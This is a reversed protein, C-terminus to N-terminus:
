ETRYVAAEGRYWTGCNSIQGNFIRCSRYAGDRFAVAEGQYWSGCFSVQGNFVRCSRYAGDRLVVAQGHYWGRCFSVQGNFISCRQFSGRRPLTRQPLPRRVVPEDSGLPPAPQATPLPQPLPQPAVRRRDADTCLYDADNTCYKVAGQHVCCRRLAGRRETVTWGSYAAGCSRLHGAASMLCIRHVGGQCVVTAGGRFVTSGCGLLRGRDVACRLYSGTPLTASCERAGPTTHLYGHFLGDPLARQQVPLAPIGQTSGGGGVGPDQGRPLSAKPLDGPADGQAVHPSGGPALVPAAASAQGPPDQPPAAPATSKSTGLSLGGATALSCAIMLARLAQPASTTAPPPAARRPLTGRTGALAPAGGPSRTARLARTNEPDM